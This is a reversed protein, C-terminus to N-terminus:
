LAQATKEKGMKELEEVLKPRETKVWDYIEKLRLLDPYRQSKYRKYCEEGGWTNYDKVPEELAKIDPFLGDEGEVYSIITADLFREMIDDLDEWTRPITKRLKSHQPFFVCKIQYWARGIKRKVINIWRKM